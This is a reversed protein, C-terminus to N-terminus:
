SPLLTGAASALTGSAVPWSPLMSTATVITHSPKQLQEAPVVHSFLQAAPLQTKWHEAPDVHMFLQIPLLQLIWQAAPDVHMLLQPPPSQTNSHRAPDVHVFVQVPPSQSHPSPPMQGGQILDPEFPSFTGGRARTVTGVL